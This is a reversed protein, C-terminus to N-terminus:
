GKGQNLTQNLQGILRAGEQSGMVQRVLRTLAQADGKGATQRLTGGSQQDLLEMLRKTDPANLVSQLLEKNKLLGAARPDKMLEDLKSM